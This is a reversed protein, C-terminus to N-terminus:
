GGGDGGGTDGLSLKVVISDMESELFDITFKSQVVENRRFALPLNRKASRLRM